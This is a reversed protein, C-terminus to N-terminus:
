STSSSLRASPVRVRIVGCRRNMLTGWYMIDLIVPYAYQLLQPISKVVRVVYLCMPRLCRLGPTPFAVPPSLNILLVADCRPLHYASLDRHLRPRVQCFLM